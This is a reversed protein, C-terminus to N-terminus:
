HQVTLVLAMIEKEYVSKSLKNTTLAKSFFAVLKYEQLLVAGVGHESADCEVVFEKSFDPLSLVPSSTLKDKLNEFAM